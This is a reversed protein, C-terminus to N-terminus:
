HSNQLLVQRIIEEKATSIFVHANSLTKRVLNNSPVHKRSSKAIAPSDSPILQAYTSTWYNQLAMLLLVTLVMLVMLLRWQKLISVLLSPKPDQSNRATHKM